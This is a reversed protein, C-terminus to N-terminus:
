LGERSKLTERQTIIMGCLPISVRRFCCPVYKDELEQMHEKKRKRSEQAAVQPLFVIRSILVGLCNGYLIELANHRHVKNRIKRRVSKLAREEM